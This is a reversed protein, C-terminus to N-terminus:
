IQGAPHLLNRQMLIATLRDLAQAYRRLVTRLGIGLLAATEGHTYGQMAIRRLLHQQGPGLLKLCSEVDCVFHVVDDFGNVRSHSVDGRFVERGMLSPVRGAEFSLRMCRDLMAETYKRYFALEVPLEALTAPPQPPQRAPEAAAAATVLQLGHPRKREAGAFRGGAPEAVAFVIPLVRVAAGSM